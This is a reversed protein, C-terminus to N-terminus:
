AKPTMAGQAALRAQYEGWYLEQGYHSIRETFCGWLEGGMQTWRESFSIDEGMPLGDNPSTMQNFVQLIGEGLGPYRSAYREPVGHVWLDPYAERMQEFVTRQILMVGTGLQAARIFDGRRVSRGEGDTWIHGIYGAAIERFDPADPRARLVRVLQAWDTSRRPYFCGVCPAGFGLLKAILSPSFGMDSDIFLLHTFSPDALVRSAFANRAEPLFTARPTSLEFSVDGGRRAAELLDVVANLYNVAVQGDYTPTAILIKATM